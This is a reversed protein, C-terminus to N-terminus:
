RRFHVRPGVTPTSRCGLRPATRHFTESKSSIWEIGMWSRCKEYCFNGDHQVINTRYLMIIQECVHCWVPVLQELIVIALWSGCQAHGSIFNIGVLVQRGKRFHFSASFCNRIKKEKVWLRPAYQIYRPVQQSSLQHTYVVIPTCNGDMFFTESFDLFFEVLGDLRM